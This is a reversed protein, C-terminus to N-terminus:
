VACGPMLGMPLAAPQECTSEIEIARKKRSSDEIATMIDLIHYGLEGSARHPRRLRIGAAMDIVGMGRANEPFAHPVSSWEARARCVKVDGGFGNPDPVSLSGQTGHIEICPLTHKWVDFSMIMTAIAGSDFQLSSSIHTNVEVDVVQGYKKASTITRTPFSPAGMAVVSHVPGILNVLAGLYYPGMDFLPGGGVKYYFEPDPHWSEHGHCCMYATASVIKGIWGDDILKRATQVGAGLFTDAATGTRLKKAAATALLEKGQKRTVAFPKESYVHKGAALARMGVPHHAQPITLNLIMEISPDAYMEDLTVAKVNPRKLKKDDGIAGAAAKAREPDLDACAVIEAGRFKGTLTNFYANSINGCGVLGVRMTDFKAM